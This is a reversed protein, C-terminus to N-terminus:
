LTEAMPARDAQHHRLAGRDSDGHAGEHGAERIIGKYQSGAEIRWGAFL